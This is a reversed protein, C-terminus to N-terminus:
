SVFKGGGWNWGDCSRFGEVSTGTKRHYSASTVEGLTSSLVILFPNETVAELLLQMLAWLLSHYKYSLNKMRWLNKQVM